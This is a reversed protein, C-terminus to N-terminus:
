PSQPAHTLSTGRSRHWQHPCGVRVYRDWLRRERLGAGAAGGYSRGCGLKPDRMLYLDPFGESCVFVEPQVDDNSPSRQCAEFRSYLSLDM